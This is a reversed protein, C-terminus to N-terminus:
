KSPSGGIRPALLRERIDSTNRQNAEIQKRIQEGAREYEALYRDCEDRHRLYYGIVTYVDALSLADYMEVIREPTAGRQYARLVLELLVRTNGVRVAGSEEVRLPPTEPQITVSM